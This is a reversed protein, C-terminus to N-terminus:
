DTGFDPDGPHFGDFTPVELGKVVQDVNVPDQKGDGRPTYKVVITYERGKVGDRTSQKSDAIQADLDFVVPIADRVSEIATSILQNKAVPGSAVWVTTTIEHPKGTAPETVTEPSSAEVQVEGSKTM